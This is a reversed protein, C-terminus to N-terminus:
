VVPLMCDINHGCRNVKVPLMTVEIHGYKQFMRIRGFVQEAHVMGMVTFVKWNCIWGFVVKNESPM